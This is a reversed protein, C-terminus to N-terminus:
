RIRNFLITPNPDFTVCPKSKEDVESSSDQSASTTSCLSSASSSVHKPSFVVNNCTWNTDKNSGGGSSQLNPDYTVTRRPPITPVAKNKNIGSASTLVVTKEDPIPSTVGDKM